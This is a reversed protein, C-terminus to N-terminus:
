HDFNNRFTTPITNYRKEFKSYNNKLGTHKGINSVFWFEACSRFSAPNIIMNYSLNWTVNETADDM